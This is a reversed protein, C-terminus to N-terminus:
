LGRLALIALAAGAAWPLLSRAGQERRGLFESVYFVVALRIATDALPVGIPTQDSFQASVVVALVFALVLFDLPTSKFQGGDAIQISVFLSAGTLLFAGNVWMDDPWGPRPGSTLALVAGVGALYVFLRQALGRRSAPLFQIVVFAGTLGLAALSLQSSITVPYVASGVFLVCALLETMRLAFGPARPYLRRLERVRSREKADANAHFRVDLVRALRFMALVALAIGAYAGTVAVDSEYRLLYGCLVMLAQAIYIFSVAEYHYLGFDLLRHHFHNRDPMFPSRGHRIRWFMVTVTDLIPLGLLLLLLGPNLATNAQQTLLIALVAATFGLFQSGTDGMFIIAPHNNYRLFGCVGGLAALTVLAMSLSQNDYFMWAIATLAILSSGAALGDLGDSLNIANTVGVIFGVTLPISLWASVPDIGFFPVM